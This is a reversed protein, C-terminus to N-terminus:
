HEPHWAMMAQEPVRHRRTIVAPSLEVAYASRAVSSAARRARLMLHTTHSPSQILARNAALPEEM